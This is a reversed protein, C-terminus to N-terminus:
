PVPQSGSLPWGPGHLALGAQRRCRSTTDGKTAPAPVSAPAANGVREHFSGAAPFLDSVGSCTLSCQHGQEPARSRLRGSEDSTASPEARAADRLSASGPRPFHPGGVQAAPVCLRGKSRPSPRLSSGREWRSRPVGRSGSHPASVGSCTLRRQHGQEPARSGLRGAPSVGPHQVRHRGKHHPGRGSRTAQPIIVMATVAMTM